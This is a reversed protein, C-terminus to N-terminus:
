SKLHDSLFRIMKEIIKVNELKSYEELEDFYKNLL